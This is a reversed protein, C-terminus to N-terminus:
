LLLWHCIFEGLGNNSHVYDMNDTMANVLVNKFYRTSACVLVCAYM